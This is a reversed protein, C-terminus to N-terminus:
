GDVHGAELASVLYYELEREKYLSVPGGLDEFVPCMESYQQFIDRLTPNALTFNINENSVGYSWGGGSPSANFTYTGPVFSTDLFQQVLEADVENDDGDKISNLTICWNYESFKNLVAFVEDLHYKKSSVFHAIMNEADEVSLHAEEENSLDSNM